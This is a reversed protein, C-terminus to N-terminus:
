RGVRVAPRMRHDRLFTAMPEPAGVVRYYPSGGNFVLSLAVREANRTATLRCPTEAGPEADDEVTWGPGYEDTLLSRLYQAEPTM